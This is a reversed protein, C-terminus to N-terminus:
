STSGGFLEPHFIRDYLDDLEPGAVKVEAPMRGHGDSAPGTESDVVTDGAAAPMLRQEVIVIPRRRMYLLVVLAMGCIAASGLLLLGGMLYRNMGREAVLVAKLDDVQREAGAIQAQAQSLQARLTALEARTRQLDARVADYQGSVELAAQLATEARAIAANADSVAQEAQVRAQDALAQAEQYHDRAAQAEAVSATLMKQDAVRKATDAQAQLTQYTSLATQAAGAKQVAEGQAAQAEAVLQAVQADSSAPTPPPTGDQAWAVSVPLSLVVVLIWVIRKV